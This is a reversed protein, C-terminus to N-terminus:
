EDKLSSWLHPIYDTENKRFVMVKKTITKLYKHQNKDKLLHLKLLINRILENIKGKIGISTFDQYLVLDLGSFAAASLYEAERFFRDNREGNKMTMGYRNEIINYKDIYDQNSTENPMVPEQTILYGGNKLANNISKMTTLLCDSHHLAGFSVVYDIESSFPLDDFSALTPMVTGEVSHHKINRPLLEAVAAESAEVAYVTDMEMNKALWISAYGNGCGIDVAKGSITLNLAKQVQKFLNVRPTFIDDPSVDMMGKHIENHLKFDKENMM